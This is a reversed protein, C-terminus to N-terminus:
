NNMSNVPSKVIYSERGLKESINQVAQNLSYSYTFLYEFLDNCLKKRIDKADSFLVSSLYYRIEELNVIIVATIM